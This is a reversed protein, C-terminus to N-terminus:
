AYYTESRCDCAGMAKSKRGTTKQKTNKQGRRGDSTCVRPSEGLSRLLTVGCRWQDWDAAGLGEFFQGGLLLFNGSISKLNLSAGGPNWVKGKTM